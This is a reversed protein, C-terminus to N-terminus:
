KHQILVIDAQLKTLIAHRIIAQTIIQLTTIVRTTTTTIKRQILNVIDVVADM